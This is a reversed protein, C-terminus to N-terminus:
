RAEEFRRILLMTRLWGLAQESIDTSPANASPASM